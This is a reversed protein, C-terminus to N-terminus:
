KGLSRIRGNIKISVRPQRSFGLTRREKEDDEDGEEGGSDGDGGARRKNSALKLTVNMDVEIDPEPGDRDKLSQKRDKSLESNMRANKSEQRGAVLASAKPRALSSTSDHALWPNPEPTVEGEEGEPSPRSSSSGKKSTKAKQNPFQLPSVGTQSFPNKPINSSAKNVITLEAEGPSDKGDEGDSQRESEEFESKNPKPKRAAEKKRGARFIRGTDNVEEEGEDSKDARDDGELAQWLGEIEAKNARKQAAEANRMFKLDMLKSKNHQCKASDSGNKLKGLGALLRQSAKQPDENFLDDEEEDGSSGFEEGEVLVAKGAIRMRFGESRKATEVAGNQAEEDWMTRESDKTGKSWKNQKYRLTMQEEVRKREREMVGEGNLVSGREFALAEEIANKQKGMKRQSETTPYQSSGSSVNRGSREEVSPENTKLEEFGKIFKGSAMNSDKLVGSITAELETFSAPESASLVTVKRLASLRANPANALPLHHGVQRNHKVAGTRRGLAEKSKEYAVSRDLKDQQRKALPASLKRM